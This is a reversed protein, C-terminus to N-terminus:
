LLIIRAGHGPAAALRDDCTVLPADLAEALAVYAADYATFNGRLQWIRSLLFTHDHRDIPLDQFDGMMQNGRSDDIEGSLRYIHVVQAVEIDLLHPAHRSEASDLIRDCIPEARETWLLM